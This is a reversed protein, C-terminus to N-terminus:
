ASVKMLGVNSSLFALGAPSESGRRHGGPQIKQRCPKQSSEQSYYLSLCCPGLGNFTIIMREGVRGKGPWKRFRGSAADSFYRKQYNSAQQVFMLRLPEPSRRLPLDRQTAQPLLGPKPVPLFLKGDLSRWWCHQQSVAECTVSLKEM